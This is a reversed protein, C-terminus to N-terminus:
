WAWQYGVGIGASGLGSADGALYSVEPILYFGSGLDFRAGIFFHHLRLDTRNAKEVIEELISDFIDKRDDPDNLDLDLDIYQFRYAAFPEIWDLKKSAIAQGYYFNSFGGTGIGVDVAAALPATEENWFQYKLDGALMVSGFGASNGSLEGGIEFGAGLGARPRVGVETGGNLAVRAAKAEVAFEGAKMSRATQMSTFSGCAALVVFPVGGFAKM